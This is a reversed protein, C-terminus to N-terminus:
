QGTARWFAAFGADRFKQASEPENHIFEITAEALASMIAIAFTPGVDKLVGTALHAEMVDNCGLSEQEAAERVAPGIRESVALQALARKKQTNAMGWDLYRTWYHYAQVEAARQHPFAEAIFQYVERKVELFVQNLLEDKTAFYTFVTGEAVGALKAIRATPASLGQEAIALAAATLIATRKDGVKPRAMRHDM